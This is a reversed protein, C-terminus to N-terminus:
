LDLKEITQYWFIGSPLNTTYVSNLLFNESILCNEVPGSTSQYIGSMIRAKLFAANIIGESSHLQELATNKLGNTMFWPENM